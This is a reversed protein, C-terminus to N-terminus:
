LAATDSLETSWRATEKEHRNSDYVGFEGRTEKTITADLEALASDQPPIYNYILALNGHPRLLDHCKSLRVEPEIWHFAQASYILDYTQTPGQFSEFAENHIQVASYHELKSRAVATTDAGIEIADIAFGRQAFLTTAQGTGCGIELLTSEPGINATSVLDEIAASPYQPRYRDYDAAVANFLIKRSRDFQM